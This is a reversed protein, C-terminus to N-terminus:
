TFNHLGCEPAGASRQANVIGDVGNAPVEVVNGYVEVKPSLSIVIGSPNGRLTNNRIIADYSIEHRIGEALNNVVTNEEYLSHINDTDTWLGNGLNDHVYNSRVVLNDTVAFKSGGAEFAINYGAVNNYAIENKSIVVNVGHAGIGLQGNHHIKCFSVQSGSGVEVGAGHNWRVEDDQVKWAQPRGSSRETQDVPTLSGGIAGYQPPSAYKEVVFNRITVNRATGSFATAAKSFEVIHGTPNGAIYIKRSVKDFFWCGPHLASLSDVPLQLQDDIFVDNLIWCLPHDKACHWLGRQHSAKLQPGFGAM